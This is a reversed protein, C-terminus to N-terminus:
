YGFYITGTPLTAPVQDVPGIILTTKAVYTSDANRKNVADTANVPDKVSTVGEVALSAKVTMNDLYEQM